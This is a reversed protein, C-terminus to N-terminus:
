APKVRLRRATTFRNRGYLGAHKALEEDFRIRMAGALGPKAWPVGDDALVRAVAGSILAERHRSWLVDPMEEADATPCTVIVVSASVNAAPTPHITLAGPWGSFTCAPMEVSALDVETSNLPLVPVLEGAVTISPVDIVELGAGPAPTLTAGVSTVLQATTLMYTGRCWEIAADRLADIAVEDPCGPARSLIRNLCADYRVDAM